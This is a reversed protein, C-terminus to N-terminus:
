GLHIFIHFIENYDYKHRYRKEMRHFFYIAVLGSLVSLSSSVITIIRITLKVNESLFDLRQTTNSQYSTQLKAHSSLWGSNQFTDALPLSSSLSQSTSQRMQLRRPALEHM